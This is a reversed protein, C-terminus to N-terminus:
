YSCTCAWLSSPALVDALFRSHRGSRGVMAHSGDTPYFRLRRRSVIDLLSRQSFDRRFGMHRLGSRQTASQQFEMHRWLGRLLQRGAPTDQPWLSIGLRRMDLNQGDFAGSRSRAVGTLAMRLTSRILAKPDYCRRQLSHESPVGRLIAIDRGYPSGRWVVASNLGGGVEPSWFGGTISGNEDGVSSECRVRDPRDTTSAM